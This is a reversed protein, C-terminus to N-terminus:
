STPRDVCAPPAQPASFHRPRPSRDQAAGASCNDCPQRRAWSPTPCFGIHDDDARPQSAEMGCVLKLSGAEFAQYDFSFHADAPSKSRQIFQGPAWVRAPNLHSATVVPQPRNGVVEFHRQILSRSATRPSGFCSSRQKVDIALRNSGGIPRFRRCVPQAIAFPRGQRQSQPKGITGM